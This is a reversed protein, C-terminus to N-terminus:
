PAKIALVVHRVGEVVAAMKEYDLSSPTDSSLHYNPNRYIATDTVMLAPYGCQWFSWHDSWNIGDIIAPAAIGEAPMTKAARFDSLSKEMLAKSGLDGVFAVFNATTPYRSALPAPLKQSNPEESFFGVCELSLMALIKDGEKQCKKAYVLSGMTEDHFYPPEENAFFVFRLTPGEKHDRFLRALELVAACGSANDDAGPTGSDASDYHAGLVVIGDKSGSKEAWLNVSKHEGVPYVQREVQYGLKKLEGALYAEAKKYGEPNEINRRGITKALMVVHRELRKVLDPDATWALAPTPSSSEGPTPAAQTKECGSVLCVILLIWFFRM